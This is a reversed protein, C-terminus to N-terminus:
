QDVRPYIGLLLIVFWARKDKCALGLTNELSSVLVMYRNKKGM